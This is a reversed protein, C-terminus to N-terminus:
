TPNDGAPGTDEPHQGRAAGAATVIGPLPAMQPKPKM